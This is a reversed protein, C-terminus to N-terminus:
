FSMEPIGHILYEVIENEIEDEPIPVQNALIIKEYVYQYFTKSSKWVREESKKRLKVKTPRYDYMESLKALLDDLLLEVHEAKLQFWESAKGKLRMNILM